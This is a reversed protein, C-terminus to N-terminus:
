SFGVGVVALAIEQSEPHLQECIEAFERGEEARRREVDPDAGEALAPSIEVRGALAGAALVVAAGRVFERRSLKKGM